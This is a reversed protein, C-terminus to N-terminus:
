NGESLSEIVTSLHAVSVEVEQTNPCGQVLFAHAAEHLDELLHDTHTESDIFSVRVTMTQTIRKATM